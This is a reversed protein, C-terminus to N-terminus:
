WAPTVTGSVSIITITYTSAISSLSTFFGEELTFLESHEGNGAIDTEVTITIKFKNNKSCPTTAQNQYADYTGSLEVVIVIDNYIFNDSAGRVSVSGLIKPYWLIDDKSSFSNGTGGGQLSPSIKLYKHFNAMTLKTKPYYACSILSFCMVFVLTLALIKKM